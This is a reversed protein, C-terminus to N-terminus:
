LAPRGNMAWRSKREPTHKWWPRAPQGDAIAILSALVDAMCPDHLQGDIQGLRLYLDDADAGAFQDLYSIELRALDAATAPGVGPLDSVPVRAM